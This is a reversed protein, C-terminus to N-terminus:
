LPIEEAEVAPVPAANPKDEQITGGCCGARWWINLRGTATSTTTLNKKTKKSCKKKLYRWIIWILLLLLLVSLTAGFITLMAILGIWYQASFYIDMSEPQIGLMPGLLFM